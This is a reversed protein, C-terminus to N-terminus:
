KTYIEMFRKCIKETNWHTKMFSRSFAQAERLKVRNMLLEMIKNALTHPNAKIFPHTGVGSNTWKHLTEECERDINNIVALGQSMAELSSMHYSGTVVEDICIDCSQKIKLCEYFPKNHIVIFEHPLKVNKMAMIVEDHGKNNWGKLKVNSPSYCIRPISNFEKARFAPTGIDKEIPTHYPDDIPIANPVVECEPFQRAQFQAVVLRKDVRKDKLKRSVL